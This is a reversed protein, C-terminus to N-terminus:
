NIRGKLEVIERTYVAKGGLHDMPFEFYIETSYGPKLTERMFMKESVLPKQGKLAASGPEVPMLNVLRTDGSAEAFINIVIRCSTLTYPSDNVIRGLIFNRKPDIEFSQFYVQGEADKPLPSDDLGTCASCLIAIILTAGSLTLNSKLLKLDV